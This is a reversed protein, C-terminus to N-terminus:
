CTSEYPDYEGGKGIGSNGWVLKGDSEVSEWEEGGAYSYDMIDVTDMDPDYEYWNERADCMASEFETDVVEITGVKYVLQKENEGRAFRFVKLEKPKTGELESYDELDMNSWVAELLQKVRYGRNDDSYGYLKLINKLEENVSLEIPTLTILKSIDNTTLMSRLTKMIKTELMTFVKNNLETVIDGLSVRIEENLPKSEYKNLLNLVNTRNISNTNLMERLESIIDNEIPSAQEEIKPPETTQNGGSKGYKVSSKTTKQVTPGDTVESHTIDVSYGPKDDWEWYQNLGDRNEEIEGIVDDENYAETTVVHHIDVYRIEETIVNTKYINLPRLELGDYNTITGDILGEYNDHAAWFIKSALGDGYEDKISLIRLIHSMREMRDDLTYGASAIDSYESFFDKPLQKVVLQVAKFFVVKSITPHIFKQESPSYFGGPYSDTPVDGESQERLINKILDRM